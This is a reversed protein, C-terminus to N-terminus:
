IRFKVRTSTINSIGDYFPRKANLNSKIPCTTYNPNEPIKFWWGGSILEQSCNHHSQLSENLLSNLNEGTNFPGEFALDSFLKESGSFNYSRTLNYEDFYKDKLNGVQFWRRGSWEGAYQQGDADELEIRLTSYRKAHTMAKLVDLGIWFDTDAGVTGFGHRFILIYLSM